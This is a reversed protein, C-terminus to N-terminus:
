SNKYINKLPHNCHIDILKLLANVCDVFLSLASGIYQVLSFLNTSYKIPLIFFEGTTKPNLDLWLSFGAGKNIQIM